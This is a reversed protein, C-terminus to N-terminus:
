QFRFTRAGLWGVVATAVALLALQPCASAAGARFSVLQHMADMAWGTPLWAALHQMWRPAIEIPWWLGGLAALGNTALVSIGIGQRETRVLNGLLMGFSACLAGWALLVALIMPLDPGWNMGFLLTGVLMCFAIQVVGLALRGLWKGAFIEGRALPASALRKLLGRQREVVLSVSGGSLLAMLTFMIMIGPVAQEFGTPFEKRNGAAHVELTLPRPMQHLRDFAAVDPREGVRATAVLDALVTYVARSVRFQDYDSATGEDRRLLKIVTKEGRLARETFNEPIVLRRAYKEADEPSDPREVVMGNQELRQALQDALFGASAPQELAIPDKPAPGVSGSSQSTVTGIFYMFAVPMAFSFFYVEWERLFSKTEKAAIFAVNRLM